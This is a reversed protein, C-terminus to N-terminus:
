TEEKTNNDDSDASLPVGYLDYVLKTVQEGDPIYFSLVGLTKADGPLITMTVNDSSFGIAETSLGLLETLTFDTKIYSYVSSVVAPLKLSLSKEIASKIFAQQTEVRGVDGETYGSYGPDGKRFRLFEMATDGYIIQKGAPIDIILPPDDYMDTYKMHFPVDVEVGGIADVAARVGKYNISVYNDIPLGTIDEVAEILAEYGEDETGFVANIKQFESYKSYEERFYYTDRPISIIDAKKTKKDYSALMLTDSRSGEFGILLVNLKESNNMAKELPSEFEENQESSINEVEESSDEVSFEQPQLYKAYTFIGTFIVLSFSILSILFVKIFKKM